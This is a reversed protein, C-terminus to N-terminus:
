FSLVVVFFTHLFKVNAGRQLLFSNTCGLYLGSFLLRITSSGLLYSITSICKLRHIDLISPTGQTCPVSHAFSCQHYVIGFFFFFHQMFSGSAFNQMHSWSLFKTYSDNECTTAIIPASCCLYSCYVDYMRKNIHCRGVWPGKCMKISVCRCISVGICALWLGLKQM